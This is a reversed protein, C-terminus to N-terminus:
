NTSQKTSQQWSVRWHLCFGIFFRIFVLFCFKCKRNQLLIIVEMVVEKTQTWLKVNEEEKTFGSYSMLHVTVRADSEIRNRKGKYLPTERDYNPLEADAGNELLVEVCQLHNRSIALLLASEGRETQKNIM